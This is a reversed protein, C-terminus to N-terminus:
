PVIGSASEPSPDIIKGDRLQIRRELQREISPDHTSVILTGGNEAVLKIMFRVVERGTTSDLQGTPEDALLLRPSNACARAIAVRQKEGGSLESPYHNLRTQLNVSSLLHSAIEKREIKSVGAAILPLEVNEIATLYPLLNHLQFIFGIKARRYSAGEHQDLQCVNMGDVLIEGSTPRDLSGILNLLTSKGSGSPGMIAIKEGAHASFSVSDLATVTEGGMNYTKTVDKVEILKM